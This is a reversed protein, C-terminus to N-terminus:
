DSNGCMYRKFWPSNREFKKITSDILAIEDETFGFMKNIEEDTYQKDVLWPLFEKSNNNQDFTLVINIFLPLKNNFIFHKWNELEEKTGYINDAVKGPIFKGDEYRDCLLHKGGDYSWHPTESIKNDNFHWASSLYGTIFTGNATSNWMASGDWKNGKQITGCFSGGAGSIIEAYKVYYANEKKETTIHKYVSKQKEGEIITQKSGLMDGYALVKNLISWITKYNGILNCDYIDNVVKKEGCCEFEITDYTKSFDVYTISLPHYEIINFDDNLNEIVVKKVHGQIKTKIDEIMKYDSKRVNKGYKGNEDYKRVNILWTAPEVIAVKGNPDLNNLMENFLKLHLTGNYPPNSVIFNFKMNKIRNVIMNKVIDDIKDKAQSKKFKSAENQLIYAKEYIETVDIPHVHKNLMKKFWVVDKDPFFSSGHCDWLAYILNQFYKITGISAAIVLHNGRTLVNIIVQLNDIIINFDSNVLSVDTLISGTGVGEYSCKGCIGNFNGLILVNGDVVDPNDWFRIANNMGIVIEKLKKEKTDSKAM